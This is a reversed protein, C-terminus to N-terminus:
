THLGIQASKGRAGLFLLLTVASLPNVEFGGFFITANVYYSAPGFISAFEISQFAYFAALTGM